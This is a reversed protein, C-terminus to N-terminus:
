VESEFQQVPQVPQAFPLKPQQEVPQKFVESTAQDIRSVHRPSTHTFNGGVTITTSQFCNCRYCCNMRNFMDRCTITITSGNGGGCLSSFQSTLWSCCSTCKAACILSVPDM